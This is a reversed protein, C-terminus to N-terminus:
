IMGVLDGIGADAGAKVIAERGDSAVLHPLLNTRLSSFLM